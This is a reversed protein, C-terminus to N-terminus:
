PSLRRRDESTSPRINRRLLMVIFLLIPLLIQFIPYVMDGVIIGAHYFETFNAPLMSMTFVAVCVPLIWKKYSTRTTDSFGIIAAILFTSMRTGLGLFAALIFLVDMREFVEALEILQVVKLLPFVVTPALVPGLVLLNIQNIVLMAFSVAGYSILMSKRLNGGKKVMPFYVMFLISQAFPFSLMQPIAADWAPQMGHELVPLMYEFNVLGTGFIMILLLIYSILLVPLLVQTGLLYVRPGYRALTYGIGLIMLMPVVIPTQNLLMYVTIEGIDRLSRSSEYAFYMCFLIAIISGIGKGMYHQFLEFLNKNPERNHMAFHLMLLVLGICAGLLMSLWADQKASGGFFYIALGGMQFVIFTSVIQSTQVQERKM